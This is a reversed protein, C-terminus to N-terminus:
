VNPADKSKVSLNFSAELCNTEIVSGGIAHFLAPKEM